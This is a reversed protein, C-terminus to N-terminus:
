KCITKKIPCYQKDAPVQVLTSTAFDITSDTFVMASLSGGYVCGSDLCTCNNAFYYGLQAWHAFFVPKEGHYYTFWPLPAAGLYFQDNNTALLSRHNSIKIPDPWTRIKTLWHVPTKEVGLLPIFGAHVAIFHQDDIFYPLTQLWHEYEDPLASAVLSNCVSYDQKKKSQLYEVEYNGVIAEFKHDTLLAMCELSAPGKGIIDGLFIVRDKQKIELLSVLERLEAICGHVDGIFIVRNKKMKSAYGDDM